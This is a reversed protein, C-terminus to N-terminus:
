VKAILSPIMDLNKFDTDTTILFTRTEMVSAAIWMDNTPIPKGRKRLTNYVLAYRESTEETIPSVMVVCRHLFEVLELRNQRHYAGRDFGALLEGVVIPNVFLRDAQAIAEIVQPNNRKFASYASTDLFISKVFEM